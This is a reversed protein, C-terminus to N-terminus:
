SVGCNYPCTEGYVYVALAGSREAIFENFEGETVLHNVLEPVHPVPMRVKFGFLHNMSSYMQEIYLFM